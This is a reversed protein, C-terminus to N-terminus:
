RGSTSSLHEVLALIEESNPQVAIQVKPGAIQRIPAAVAESLCLHAVHRVEQELGATQILHVWVQSTRPSMLLVADLSHARLATGVAEPLSQAAVSRYVVVPRVSFGRAALAGTLDFAVVDGCAYLITGQKPDLTCATREALAAGGADGEAIVTFGANRAAEGTGSGVALM